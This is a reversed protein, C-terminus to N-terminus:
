LEFDVCARERTNAKVVAGAEVHLPHTGYSLLAEPSSHDSVLIVDWNSAVAAADARVTLSELGEIQGVLPELAAAMADVAVKQGAADVANLKWMVIHRIM